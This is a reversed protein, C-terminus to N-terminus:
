LEAIVSTMVIIDNWPLEREGKHGEHGEHEFSKIKAGCSLLESSLLKETQRKKGRFKLILVATSAARSRGSAV